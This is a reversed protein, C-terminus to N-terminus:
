RLGHVYHHLPRNRYVLKPLQEITVYGPPANIIDPIRAVMQVPTTLNGDLGGFRLTLNPEGRIQWTKQESEGKKLVRVANRGKFAIGERTEIDILQMTGIARGSAITKGLAACHLPAAAVIPELGERIRTITLGLDAALNDWFYVYIGHQLPSDPAPKAARVAEPAEDVHVVRAVEPGYNDVNTVSRHTISRISRCAGTLLAPANVILMDQNGTGTISVGKEKALRDLGATLAPEARWPYSAEAGVTIVNMRAMLCERYIQDMRKMDDFVSVIAVDASVGDLCGPKAERITLNFPEALAAFEALNRGVKPGARNFAGVIEVGKERLLRVVVVGVKGLGYVVARIPRM